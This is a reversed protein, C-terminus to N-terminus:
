RRRRERGRRLITGVLTNRLRVYATAAESDDIRQLDPRGYRSEEYADALRDADDPCDVAAGVRRSWERATEAPAPGLRAWHGLRQAKAWLRARGDLGGLGRNWTFRGGIFMAVIVTLVGALTWILTWPPQSTVVPQESLAADVPAPISLGDDVPFLDDLSPDELGNSSGAGITGLGGAGGAPRDQTPNFNVWGYTPFFVEVWSYAADKRVTYKTEVAQSPDLVFGVAVRAPIGLTRLMVAMATAQYDFYGRKLDFLLFDVADRGAPASEVDLDYPFERLYAEVAQAKGYPTNTGGAVRQAEDRVRQPLEKPLQLYRQTV